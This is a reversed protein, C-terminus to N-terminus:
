SDTEVREVPALCHRQAPTQGRKMDDHTPKHHTIDDLIKSSVKSSRRSTSRRGCGVLRSLAVEENGHAPRGVPRRDAARRSPSTPRTTPRVGEERHPRGRTQPACGDHEIRWRPRFPENRVRRRPHFPPRADALISCKSTQGPQAWSTSQHYLPHWSMVLTDPPHRGFGGGGGAVRSSQRDPSVRAHSQGYGPRHRQCASTYPQM